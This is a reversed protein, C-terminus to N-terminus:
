ELTGELQNVMNMLYNKIADECQILYADSGFEHDASTLRICDEINTETCVNINLPLSPCVDFEIWGIYIDYYKHPGNSTQIWKASPKRVSM